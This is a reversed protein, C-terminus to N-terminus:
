CNGKKNSLEWCFLAKQGKRAKKEIDSLFTFVNTKGMSYSEIDFGAKIQEIRSHFGGLTYIYLFIAMKM